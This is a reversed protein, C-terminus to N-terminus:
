DSSWPHRHLDSLRGFMVGTLTQLQLASEGLCVDTVSCPLVACCDDNYIQAMLSSVTLWPSTFDLVSSWGTPQAQIM